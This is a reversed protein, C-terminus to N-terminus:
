PEVVVAVFGALDNDPRGAGDLHLDIKVPDGAVGRDAGFFTDTCDPDRGPRDGIELAVSPVALDPFAMVAPGAIDADNVAPIGGVDDCGM